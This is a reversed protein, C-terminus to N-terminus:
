DYFALVAVTGPPMQLPVLAELLQRPRRSRDRHAAPVRHEPAAPWGALHRVSPRGRGAGRRLLDVGDDGSALARCVAAPRGGAARAPGAGGRSDAGQGVRRPPVRHAQTDPSLPTSLPSDGARALLASSSWRTAYGVNDVLLFPPGGPRNGHAPNPNSDPILQRWGPYKHTAPHAAGPPHRRRTHTITGDRHSLELASAPELRTTRDEPLAPRTLPRDAATLSRPPCRPSGTWRPSSCRPGPRLPRCGCGPRAPGAPSPAPTPSCGCGYGYGDRNGRRAPHGTLALLGTWALLEQALTVVALWIRNQALDHLPFNRLGTDKACRIRDEWRAQRRHRLELDALQGRTTNTAFATARRRRHDAAAGRSAATRVPHDGADGGPWTTLYRLDTIETM